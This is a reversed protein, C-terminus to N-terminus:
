TDKLRAILLGVHFMVESRPSPKTPLLTPLSSHPYLRYFVTDRKCNINKLSKYIVATAPLEIVTEFLVTAM